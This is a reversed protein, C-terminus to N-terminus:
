FLDTRGDFPDSPDSTDREYQKRADGIDPIVEEKSGIATLEALRADDKAICSACTGHPIPNRELREFGTRTIAMGPYEIGCELCLAQVPWPGNKILDDIPSTM